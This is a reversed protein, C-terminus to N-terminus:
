SDKKYVESSSSWFLHQGCSSPRGASILWCTFAWLCTWLDLCWLGICHLCFTLQPDRTVSTEFLCGLNVVETDFHLQTKHDIFM